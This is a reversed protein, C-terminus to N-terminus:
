WIGDPLGWFLRGIREEDDPGPPAHLVLLLHGDDFMARQRGIREGMRQRFRQPVDWVAPILSRPAQAVATM